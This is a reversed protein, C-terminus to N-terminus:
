FTVFLICSFDDGAADCEDAASDVGIALLSGAAVTAPTTDTVTCQQPVGDGASGATACTMGSVAATDDMLRFVMSDDAAATATCVATCVMSVPKFAADKLEPWPEDATGITTDDEGDCGAGGDIFDAETDDFPTPSIFTETGGTPGNGCFRIEKLMIAPSAATFGASLTVDGTLVTAGGVNLAGDTGLATEACVSGDATASTCTPSSGYTAHTVLRGPNLNTDNACGSVMLLAGILITLLKKM